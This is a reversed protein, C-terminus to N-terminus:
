RYDPRRAHAAPGRSPMGDISGSMICKLRIEIRQAEVSRAIPPQEFSRWDSFLALLQEYTGLTSNDNAAGAAGLTFVGTTIALIRLM